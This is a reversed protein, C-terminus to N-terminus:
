WRYVTCTAIDHGGYCQARIANTTSNDNAIGSKAYVRTNHTIDVM